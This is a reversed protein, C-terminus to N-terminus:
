VKPTDKEAESKSLNTKITRCQAVSLLSVLLTILMVSNCISTYFNKTDIAVAIALGCWFLATLITLIQLLTMKKLMPNQPELKKFQANIITAFIGCLITWLAIIGLTVLSFTTSEWYYSMSNSASKTFVWMGSSLILLYYLIDLKFIIKKM